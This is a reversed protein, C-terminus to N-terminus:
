GYKCNQGSNVASKSWNVLTSWNSQGILHQCTACLVREGSNPNAAGEEKRGQSRLHLSLTTSPAVGGEGALSSSPPTATSMTTSPSIAALHANCTFTACLLFITPPQWPQPAITTPFCAEM